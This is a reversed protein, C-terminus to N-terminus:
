SGIGMIQGERKLKKLDKVLSNVQKEYLRVRTFTLSHTASLRAMADTLIKETQEYLDPYAPPDIGARQFIDNVESSDFPQRLPHPRERPTGWACKLSM